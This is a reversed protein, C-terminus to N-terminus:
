GDAREQARARLFQRIMRQSEGWTTYHEQADIKGHVILLNECGAHRMRLVEYGGKTPEAKWGYGECFTQFAALKSKHLTCRSRPM